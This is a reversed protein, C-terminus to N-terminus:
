LEMNQEMVSQSFTLEAQHQLSNAFQEVQKKFALGNSISNNRDRGSYLQYDSSIKQIVPLVLKRSTDQYAIKLISTGKELEIKLSSDRWDQFTWSDVNEGASAKTAKVFDYTPKLVSPSKLVKVETELQSSASGGAISSLISISSVAESFGGTGASDPNELVIEFQGEWVPKSIFAYIGSIVLSVGTVVAILLSHRGLAKAVQRMDVEDDAAASSSTYFPEQSVNISM